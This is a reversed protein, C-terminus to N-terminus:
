GSQRFNGGNAGRAFGRGGDINRINNAFALVNEAYSDNYQMAIECSLSSKMDERAFYIIRSLSSKGENLYKVFAKLGDKYHYTDKKQARDDQFTISVGANGRQWHTM